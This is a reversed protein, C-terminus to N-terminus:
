HYQVQKLAIPFTLKGSVELSRTIEKMIERWIRCVGACAVVNKRQPWNCGSEEVRTLIGRLLELPLNALCNLKLSDKATISGDLFMPQLGDYFKLESRTWSLSGIGMDHIISRFLMILFFVIHFEFM